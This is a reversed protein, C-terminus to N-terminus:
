TCSICLLSSFYTPIIVSMTSTCVRIWLTDRTCHTEIRKNTQENQINAMTQGNDLMHPRPKELLFLQLFQSM